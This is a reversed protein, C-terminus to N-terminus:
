PTPPPGAIRVVHADVVVDDERVTTFAVVGAGLPVISWADTEVGVAVPPCQALDLQGQILQGGTRLFVIGDGYPAMESVGSPTEYEGAVRASGTTVDFLSGFDDLMAVRRDRQITQAVFAAVLTDVGGSFDLVGNTTRGFWKGRPGVVFARGPSIRQVAGLVGFDLDEEAVGSEQWRNRHFHHVLGDFTMAFLELGDATTGTSLSKIGVPFEHFLAYGREPHGVYLKGNVDGVYLDEGPGRAAAFTRIREVPEIVQVTSTTVRFVDGDDDFAIVEDESMPVASRISAGRPNHVIDIDPEVCHEYSPPPAPLEFLVSAGNMGLDLWEDVDGGDVHGLYGAAFDPLPVGRDTKRAQPLEGAVWELDELRTRYYLVYVDATGEYPVVAPIDNPDFEAVSYAFFRSENDHQLGVVIVEMGEKHPLDIQFVPQCGVGGLTACVAALARM